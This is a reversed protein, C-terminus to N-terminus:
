NVTWRPRHIHLVYFRLSCFHRRRRYTRRAVNMAGGSGHQLTGGRRRRMRRGPQADQERVRKDSGAGRPPIPKFAQVEEVRRTDTHLRSKRLMLPAGEAGRKARTSKGFNM